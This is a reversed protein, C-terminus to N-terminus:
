RPRAAIADRRDANGLMGWLTWAEHWAAAARARDPPNAAEWAIAAAELAKAVDAEAGRSAERWTVFATFHQDFTSTDGLGAACAALVGDCAAVLGARRGARLTAQAVRLSEAAAGYRGRALQVMALNMLPIATRAPGFADLMRVADRYAAEAAELDGEARHLEGLINTAQARTQRVRGVTPHAFVRAILARSEDFKGQNLRIVALATLADGVAPTDALTDLGTCFHIAAGDLDGRMKCADGLAHHATAIGYADDCHRAVRLALAGAREADDYRGELSAITSIQRLLRGRESELGHREADAIAAECCVRAEATRYQAMLTTVRRRAAFARRPDDPAVSDLARDLVDLLRLADDAQGSSAADGAAVLLPDVAAEPRGAAYWHQGLRGDRGRPDRAALATACAAHHAALRGAQAAQELLRERLLGHTFALGRPTRRFLARSLMADVLGDAVRVGAAAAADAWEDVDIDAGLTAALELTGEVSSRDADPTAAIAAAIRSRWLSSLGDPLATSAGPRLAFGESSPVLAGRDVWDRVVQIAFMPSGAVRAALSAALAPALGIRDAIFTCLEAEAVPGVDLTVVGPLARLRDLAEVERPRDARPIVRDGDLDAHASLVLLAPLPRPDPDTLVSRAFAITEASLDVDELTLIVPREEAVARLWRRVAGLREPPTMGDSKGEVLAALARLDDSHVNAPLSEALQREIAAADLGWLRHFRAVMPPLGDTPDPQEQHHAIARRAAGLEDAREGLWRALRGKGNGPGGRLVVARPRRTAVVEGLAAWMADREAERGLIGLDRVAFLGLGTGALRPPASSRRDRWDNPLPPAPPARTLAIEETPADAEDIWLFSSLTDEEDASRPAVSPDDLAFLADAARQPRHHPDRALMRRLWAELHDPVDFCPTFAPLKGSLHQPALAGVDAGDYPPRGTVLEWVLCGLAYLDTWPGFRRSEGLFQEPAMYLPTGAVGNPDARDAQVRALGFDSLKLGPRLDTPACVLINAPKLDRHIVGRAHAHGLADLLAVVIAETPAWAEPRQVSDLTGWSALEMALYPSGATLRGDSAAATEASVEGADYVRVVGPHDLRAVARVEERFLQVFRPRRAAAATLVKVAVPVRQERHQARWVEGVAGSGLPAILEFPGLTPAERM